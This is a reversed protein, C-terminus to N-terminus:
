IIMRRQLLQTGVEVTTGPQRGGMESTLIPSIACDKKEHEKREKGLRFDSRPVRNKWLRISVLSSIISIRTVAGNNDIVQSADM